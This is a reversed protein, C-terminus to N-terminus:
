EFLKLFEPDLSSKFTGKKTVGVKVKGRTLNASCVRRNIIKGFHTHEIDPKFENDRTVILPVQYINCTGPRKNSKNPPVVVFDLDAQMNGRTRPREATQTKQQKEEDQNDWDRTTGQRSAKSEQSQLNRQSRRSRDIEETGHLGHSWTKEFKSDKLPLNPPTLPMPPLELGVAKPPTKHRSPPRLAKSTTVQHTSPRDIEEHIKFNAKTTGKIMFKEEPGKHTSPRKSSWGTGRITVRNLPLATPNRSGEYTMAQVSYKHSSVPARLQVAYDQTPPKNPATGGRRM